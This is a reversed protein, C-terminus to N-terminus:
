TNASWVMFSFVSVTRHNFVRDETDANFLFGHIVTVGGAFEVVLSYNCMMTICGWLNHDVHNKSTCVLYSVNVM